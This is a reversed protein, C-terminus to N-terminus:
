SRSPFISWTIKSRARLAQMAAGDILAPDRATRLHRRYKVEVFAFQLGTRAPASVFLLDARVGSQQSGGDKTPPLLDRVDDLPVFFGDSGHLWLDSPNTNNDICNAHVMALAILEGSKTTPSVLRIALRGSLAKLHWLLFECNRLSSSLGMMGLTEDLLTRVESTQSTSTILQLSGLDDREPICDIVYADYVAPVTRPSDFFEIGM